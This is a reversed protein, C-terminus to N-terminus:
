RWQPTCLVIQLPGPTNDFSVRVFIAAPTGRLWSDAVAADNRCLVVRRDDVDAIGLVLVMATNLLRVLEARCLTPPLGDILALTIEFGAISLLHSVGPRVPINRRRSQDLKPEHGTRLWALALALLIPERLMAASAWGRLRSQAM